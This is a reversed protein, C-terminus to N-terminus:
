PLLQANILRLGVGRAALYHAVDLFKQQEQAPYVGKFPSHALKQVLKRGPRTGKERTYSSTGVRVTM